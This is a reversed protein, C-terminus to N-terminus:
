RFWAHGVNHECAETADGCDGSIWWRFPLDNIDTHTGSSQRFASNGTDWCAAYSLDTNRWTRVAYANGVGLTRCEWSQSAQTSSARIAEIQANTLGYRYGQAYAGETYIGFGYHTIEEVRTWGGNTMDCFVQFPRVGASGDPDIWYVGDGSLPD